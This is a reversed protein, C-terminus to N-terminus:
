TKTTDYLFDATVRARYWEETTRLEKSLANRYWVSGTANRFTDRAIARM